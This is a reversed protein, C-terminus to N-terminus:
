CRRSRFKRTAAEQALLKQSILGDLELRKLLYIQEELKALKAGLADELDKVTITEGNVEALPDIQATQASVSSGSLTIVLILDWLVASGVRWQRCRCIVLPGRVGM